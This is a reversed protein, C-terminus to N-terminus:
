AQQLRGRLEDLQARLKTSSVAVLETLILAALTADASASYHGITPEGVATMGVLLANRDQEVIEAIRAAPDAAFEIKVGLATEWAAIGPLTDALLPVIIAGRQRHQRTLQQALLLAVEFPTALEGTNDAVGLVRGDASIAVGLHSESEKVLKRMRTLTAESPVPPQRSFLPDAERNIEIARTQAGEGIIAPIFGSTPGSMPDVFLTLTSRRILDIDVAARAAELAPTRLDIQTQESALFPDPPFLITPPTSLPAVGGDFPGVDGPLMLAHMGSYWYPRNGATIVLACDYIRREIALEVMPISAPTPCFGLRTGSPELMRYAYRAFQAAMFRTDHAVLCSWQRALLLESLRRCRWHLEELTFDVTYIGDWRYWQLRPRQSM